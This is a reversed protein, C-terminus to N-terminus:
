FSSGGWSMDSDSSSSGSDSSGSSDRYSDWDRDRSSDSDYRDRAGHGGGWGHQSVGYATMWMLFDGLSSGTFTSSVGNPTGTNFTPAATAPTALVQRALAAATSALSVAEAPETAARAQSLASHAQSLQSRTGLDIAGRRGQVYRDAQELLAEAEAIRESASTRRRKEAEEESRLPELAADLTAEATRLAELAGLPDGTGSRARQADDVAKRADAVLPAFAAQDAGLRTVDSLDSTISAIARTLTDEIASLDTKAAFVADMQHSAMAMARRATDLANAAADPSSAAAEEASDLAGQASDLLARAQDPNDLLSAVMQGPYLASVSALEAKTDALRGEFEALQERAERIQRPLDAREDRMSAFARQKETLDNMATGLADMIRTALSARHADSAATNMQQQLAFCQSVAARAAQLSAGYEQTRLAGFQAQAFALEDDASRVQEDASLLQRNAEDVLQRAREADRATAGAVIKQGRGSAKRVLVVVAILGVLVLLLGVVWMFGGRTSSSGASSTRSSSTKAASASAHSEAYSYFALAATTTAESTLPDAARLESEAAARAGTLDTDSITSEGVNGCSMHKREKYAIVYAISATSLGSQKISQKCWDGMNKGSFDPVTVFYIDLGKARASSAASSIRASQDASLWGDPDTVTDSITVPSAAFATAGSLAMLLVCVGVAAARFRHKM